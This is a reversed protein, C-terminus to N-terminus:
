KMGITLESHVLESSCVVECWSCQNPRHNPCLRCTEPPVHCLRCPLSWHISNIPPYATDSMVLLACVHVHHMYMVLWKTCLVMGSLMLLTLAVGVLM